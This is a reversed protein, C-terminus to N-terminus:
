DDESFNSTWSSLSFFRPPSPNRQPNRYQEPRVFLRLLCELSGAGHWPCKAIEASENVRFIHDRFFCAQGWTDVFCVICSSDRDEDIAHCSGTSGRSEMWDSGKKGGVECGFPEKLLPSQRAQPEALTSQNARGFRASNCSCSM